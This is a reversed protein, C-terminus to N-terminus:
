RTQHRDVANEEVPELIERLMTRARNLGSAITGPPKGLVQAMEDYNMQEFYKLVIMAREAEPMRGLADEIDSHLQPDDLVQPREALKAQHQDQRKQYRLFQLAENVAIRYVWTSINSHGDFQDIKRFAILYTEQVLDVADEANRVIRLVARYIRDSTLLYLEQQARPDWRRCGATIEAETMANSKSQDAFGQLYPVQFIFVVLWEIIIFFTKLDLM